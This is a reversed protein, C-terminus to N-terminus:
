TNFIKNNIYTSYEGMLISVRNNIQTIRTVSEQGNYMIAVVTDTIEKIWDSKLKTAVNINNIEYATLISYLKYYESRIVKTLNEIILDKNKDINNHAITSTCEQAIKFGCAKFGLDIAHECQSREKREADQLTKTLVSNLKIINATNEKIATAMEILPKSRNKAKFYEVIKIIATYCIFICSSIVVTLYSSNRVSEDVIAQISQFDDM